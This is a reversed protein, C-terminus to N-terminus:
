LTSGGPKTPVDLLPGDITFSTDITVVEGYNVGVSAGTIYANFLFNTKWLANGGAQSGDGTASGDIALNLVVRPPTGRPFLIDVLEFTDRQAGDGRNTGDDEYFMLTASGEGSTISPAFTKVADGLATTEVVESSSNLTWNRVKAIRYQDDLVERENDIGVTAVTSLAFNTTLRTINSKSVRGFYVIDGAQYGSGTRRTNFTIVRGGSTSNATIASAARVSAGVGDGQVNIVSVTENAALAQGTVVSRNFGGQIGTDSQRAIYIRGNNGTYIM